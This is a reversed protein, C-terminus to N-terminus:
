KSSMFVVQKRDGVQVILLVGFSHIVCMGIRPLQVLIEVTGGKNRSEYTVPAPHGYGSSRNYNSCTSVLVSNPTADQFVLQLRVGSMGGESVEFVVGTIPPRSKYFQYLRNDQISLLADGVMRYLDAIATGNQRNEGRFM